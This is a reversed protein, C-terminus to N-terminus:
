SRSADKATPPDDPMAAAEEHAAMREWLTADNLLVVKAAQDTLREAKDRAAQARARYEAPLDHRLPLV